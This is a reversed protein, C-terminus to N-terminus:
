FPTQLLLKTSTTLAERFNSQGISHYMKRTLENLSRIIDSFVPFFKRYYGLLGIMHQAETINTVRALDTIAKIKQRMPSIGQGSLLYGLYEIENKPFKCKLM